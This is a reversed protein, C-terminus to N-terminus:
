VGKDKPPFWKDLTGKVVQTAWEGFPASQFWEWTKSVVAMGFFGVLFGAAGNPLGTKFSVYDSTYYAMFFGGIAMAIRTPWPGKLFQMSVIAGALGALKAMLADFHFDPM